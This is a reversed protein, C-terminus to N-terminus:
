MNQKNMMTRLLAEKEMIMEQCTKCCDNKRPATKDYSELIGIHRKLIHLSVYEIIFLILGIAMGGLLCLFATFCNEFGIPLGSSDPCIQPGPEYKSIIKQYIGKDRMEILYHNILKLFPSNKQLALGYPTYRFKEPIALIECNTYIKFSAMSTFDKYLVISPNEIPISTGRSEAPIFFLQYTHSM